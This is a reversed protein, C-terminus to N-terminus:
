GPRECTSNRISKGDQFNPQQNSTFASVLKVPILSLFIVLSWGEVM